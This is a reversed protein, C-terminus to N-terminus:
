EMRVHIGATSVVQKVSQLPVENRHFIGAALASEARTANFVDVFHQESGAGSSAIVPLTTSKCVLNILDLDFGQKQGDCDISNLLVEGAGMRECASVLAVVDLDRGERGGKITCQYWVQCPKGVADARLDKTTIVTHGKLSAARQEEASDVYVRRPDVSIVVAQAGYAQSIQEISSLETRAVPNARYQEAALVADSGISIKDAGARFYRHAVDLASYRKGNVDVYDRIGGGITLPVFVTKSAEELVQLLPADELPESRFSTINLFTVEDAGEDFYRKALEVPKGLNRVKGKKAESEGAERVDYSDGKTVVLDGQDNTRVDLCAIIRRSIPAPPEGLHQLKCPAPATSKNLFGALLDLGVKGSKEPHFQAALVGERQVASVYEEGGYSSTAAVWSANAETQMVRYSHVFYVRTDSNDWEGSQWLCSPQQPAIGSWGINPVSANNTPRFRGITGPIVGLGEAGPSEESSEFLVQMGICIGFYENGPTKLYERLPGVYGNEKLFHMASGFAGVGPFILKTISQLQSPSTIITPEFGLFRIANLLSVLNGAGYDLVHITKSM